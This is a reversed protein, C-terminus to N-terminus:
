QANQFDAFDGPVELTLRTGSFTGGPITALVKGSPDMLVVEQTGKVSQGDASLQVNGRVKIINALARSENFSFLYTTLLFKRDGVRLWMGHHSSQTGDGAAATITGDPHFQILLLM